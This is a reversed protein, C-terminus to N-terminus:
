SPARDNSDAASSNPIQAIVDGTAAPKASINLRRERIPKASIARADRRQVGADLSL